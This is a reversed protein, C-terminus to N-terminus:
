LLRNESAREDIRKYGTYFMTIYVVVSYMTTYSHKVYNYMSVDNYWNGSVQGYFLLLVEMSFIPMKKLENRSKLSFKMKSLTLFVLGVVFYFILQSHFCLLKLTDGLLNDLWKLIFAKKGQSVLYERPCPTTLRYIIYICIYSLDIIYTLRNYQFYSPMAYM